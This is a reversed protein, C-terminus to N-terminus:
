VDLDALAAMADTTDTVVASEHEPMKTTTLELACVHFTIVVRSDSVLADPSLVGKATFAKGLVLKSLQGRTLGAMRRGDITIKINHDIPKATADRIISNPDDDVTLIIGRVDEGRKFVPTRHSLDDYLPAVQRIVEEIQETGTVAADFLTPRDRRLMFTFSFARQGPQSANPDSTFMVLGSFPSTAVKGAASRFTYRTWKGTKGEVATWDPHKPWYALAQEQPTLKPAAATAAAMPPSPQLSAHSHSPEKLIYKSFNFFLFRASKM